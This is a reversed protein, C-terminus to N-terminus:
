APPPKSLQLWGFAAEPVVAMIESFHARDITGDALSRYQFFGVRLVEVARRDHLNAIVQACRVFGEADAPLQGRGSAFGEVARQALPRLEGRRRRLFFWASAWSPYSDGIEVRAVV